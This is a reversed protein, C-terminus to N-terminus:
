TFMMMLPLHSYTPHLLYPPILPPSLPYLLYHMLVDRIKDGRVFAEFGGGRVMEQSIVKIKV